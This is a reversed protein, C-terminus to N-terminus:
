IYRLEEKTFGNSILESESVVGNYIIEHYIQGNFEYATYEYLQGNNKITDRKVPCFKTMADEKTYKDTPFPFYDYIKDWGIRKASIMHYKRM